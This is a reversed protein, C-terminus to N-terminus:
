VGFGVDIFLVKFFKKVLVEVFVGYGEDIEGEFDLVKFRVIGYLGGDFLRGYM